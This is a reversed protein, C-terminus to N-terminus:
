NPLPDIRDVVNLEVYEIEKYDSFRNVFGLLKEFDSNADVKISFSLFSPISSIVEGGEKNIIERIRSPEAEETMSIIVVDEQVEIGTEPDTVTINPGPSYPVALDSVLFTARDSTILSGDYETQVRFFRIIEQETELTFEGTYRNMPDEQDIKLQGITKLVNGSRDVEILELSEVPVWSEPIEDPSPASGFMRDPFEFNTGVRFLVENTGGLLVGAPDLSLPRITLEPWAEPDPVFVSWEKSVSGGTETIEATTTITYTGYDQAKVWVYYVVAKMDDIKLSSKVPFDHNEVILGGDNPEVLHTIELHYSSDIVDREIIPMMSMFRDKGRELEIESLGINLDLGEQVKHSVQFRQYIDSSVPEQLDINIESVEVKKLPQFNILWIVLAIGIVTIIIFALISNIEKKM